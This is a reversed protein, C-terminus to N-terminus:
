DPFSTQFIGNDTIKAVACWFIYEPADYYPTGYRPAVIPDDKEIIEILEGINRSTANLSLKHRFSQLTKRRPADNLTDRLAWLYDSDNEYAVVEEIDKNANVSASLTERLEDMEVERDQNYWSDLYYPNQNLNLIECAYDEHSELFAMAEEANMALGNQDLWTRHDASLIVPVQMVSMAKVGYIKEFNVDDFCKALTGFFLYNAMRRSSPSVHPLKTVDTRQEKLEEVDYVAGNGDLYKIIVDFARESPPTQMVTYLAAVIMDPNSDSKFSNACFEQRLDNLVRLHHKSHKVFTYYPNENLYIIESAYDPNDGFFNKVADLEMVENNQDTWYKGDQSLIVPVSMNVEEAKQSQDSISYADTETPCIATHSNEQRSITANETIKPAPKETVENHGCATLTLAAMTVIVVAKQIFNKM